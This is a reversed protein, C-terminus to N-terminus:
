AGHHRLLLCMFLLTACFVLVCDDWKWGGASKLTIEAHLEGRLALGETSAGEVDAVRMVDDNYKANPMPLRLLSSLGYPQRCFYLWWWQFNLSLRAFWVAYFGLGGDVDRVHDYFRKALYLRRELMILPDTALGKLEQPDVSDDPDLATNTIISVFADWVGVPKRINGGVGLGLQYMFGASFLAESHGSGAAAEYHLLAKAMDVGIFRSEGNYYFNGLQLESDFNGSLASLQLLRLKLMNYAERQSLLMKRQTHGGGRGIERMSPASGRATGRQRRGSPDRYWQLYVKGKVQQQVAREPPRGDKAFIGNLLQGEEEEEIIEDSLMRVARRRSDSHGTEAFALRELLQVLTSDTTPTFPTEEGRPFYPGDSHENFMSGHAVVRSYLLVAQQCDGQMQAHRALQWLSLVSGRLAAVKFLRIAVAPDQPVGRGHLKLVGLNYMAETNGRNAGKRFYKAATKFDPQRKAGADTVPKDNQYYGIAHMYGMGNLSTPEGKVAGKSFYSAAVALDRAVGQEVARDGTAYLQGLAGYAADDGKELARLFCSRARLRDRRQGNRGKLYMYGLAIIKDTAGGDAGYMLAHVTEEDTSVHWKGGFLMRLRTEGISGPLEGYTMAVADAAERFHSVALQCNRPAGVGDRYRSGLAMHAEPISELAAFKYHMIAHADSQPVGVGSAYMVGLLWHLRGHGMAAGKKIWTLAETLNSEDYLARLARHYIKSLEVRSAPRSAYMALDFTLYTGNVPEIGEVTQKPDTDGEATLPPESFETLSSVDSACICFLLVLLAVLPDCRIWRRVVRSSLDRLPRRM